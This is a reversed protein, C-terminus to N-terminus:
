YGLQRRKEATDAFRKRAAAITNALGKVESLNLVEDYEMAPLTLLGVESVRADGAFELGTLLGAVKALKKGNARAIQILRELELRAEEYEFLTDKKLRVQAEDTLVFRGDVVM